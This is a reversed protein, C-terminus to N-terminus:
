DLEEDKFIRYMPMLLGDYSEFPEFLRNFGNGSHSEIVIFIKGQYQPDLWSDEYEKTLKKIDLSQGNIDKFDFLKRGSNITRIIWNLSNVTLPETNTIIFKFNQKKTLFLMLPTLSGKIGSVNEIQSLHLYNNTKKNDTAVYSLYIQDIPHFLFYCVGNGLDMQYVDLNDVSGIKTSKSVDLGLGYAVETINM